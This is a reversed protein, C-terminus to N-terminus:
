REEVWVIGRLIDKLDRVLGGDDALVLVAVVHGNEHVAEREHLDLKLPTSYVDALSDVLDHAVLLVGVPSQKVIDLNEDHGVAHVCLIKCIGVPLKEIRQREEPRVPLVDAKRIQLVKGFREKGAIVNHLHKRTVHNQVVRVPNQQHHARILDIGHFGKHTLRREGRLVGVNPVRGARALCEGRELRCLNEGGARLDLLHYEKNIAFVEVRLSGLLEVLELLAGHVRCVLCVNEDTLHLVLVALEDDGRHLLHSNGDLTSAVGLHHVGIPILFDHEDDVFAVTALKAVHVAINDPVECVCLEKAESPCRTEIHVAHRFPMTDEGGLRKETLTQVVIEDLIGNKVVIDESEM